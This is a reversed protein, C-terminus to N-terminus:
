GLVLQWRTDGAVDLLVLDPSVTVTVTDGIQFLSLRPPPGTCRIAAVDSGIAPQAAEDVVVFGDDGWLVRYGAGGKCTASFELLGHGDEQPAFTVVGDTEPVPLEGLAALVSFRSSALSIPKGDFPESFDNCPEAIATGPTHRFFRAAHGSDDIGILLDNRIIATIPVVGEDAWAEPLSGPLWTSGDTQIRAGNSCQSIQIATEIADSWSNVVVGPIAVPGEELPASDDAVASNTTSAVEAADAATVTSTGDDDTLAFAAGAISFVAVFVGAVGLTRKRAAQRQGLGAHIAAPDPADLAGELHDVLEPIEEGIPDDTM